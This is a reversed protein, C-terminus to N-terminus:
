QALSGSYLNQLRNELLDKLPQMASLQAPYVREVNLQQLSQLSQIFQAVAPQELDFNEIMTALALQLNDAFLRQQEQLVAAQAQMLAYKLQERVLWQQQESLLPKMAIDRRRIDAFDRSFWQWIKALNAKADWISNSLEVDDASPKIEPLKPMALALASSQKTMASLSLAVSTLSIPNVQQLAQIDNAILERINLLSPDALDQLRSDASQLMLIATRVDQELWMKRGAMRVLYDAEALLWDSPRRGSLENLRETNTQSLQNAELLQQQQESLQQQQAQQASTVRQEFGSRTELASNLYTSQQQIFDAQDQQLQQWQLWGWYAAAVLLGILILNLLSFLWLGLTRTTKVSAKRATEGRDKQVEETESKQEVEGLQQELEALKKVSEDTSPTQKETM